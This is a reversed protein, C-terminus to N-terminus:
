ESRSTLVVLDVMAYLAELNEQEVHGLLKVEGKLKLKAIQRRLNQREPGEGAIMCLFHLGRRKLEACADVLFAHNKVQHLRGVALIALCSGSDLMPLPLYNHVSTNVGLRQVVLKRPDLSPFRALLYNRNYK